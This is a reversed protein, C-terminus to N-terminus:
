AGVIPDLTKTSSPTAETFAAAVSILLPKAPLWKEDKAFISGDEQYLCVSNVFPFEKPISLKLPTSTRNTTILFGTDEEEQYIDVKYKQQLAIYERCIRTCFRFEKFANPPDM